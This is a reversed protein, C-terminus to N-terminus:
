QLKAYEAKAQKLIPIEPDADKWLTRFDQYATRAKSTDGSLAYARALQLHALAAIVENQVVGPHALIKRFEGAAPVGQKAMLYAEGRLYVPYFCFLVSLDTLGLEYPAAPKLAEVAKGAEYSQLAVAARITPLFSLNIVTNEPYRKELDAALHTAQASDGAMALAVASMAHVNKGDLAALADNAEKQALAANGVVAERVAEAARAAAALEKDDLRKSAEATRRTLERAEVYHGEYAATDSEDYLMQAEWEPNKELTAAEKKMGAEDRQLFDIMYLGTHYLPSDLHQSLAAVAQAKADDLREDFQYAALLNSSINGAHSLDMAKQVLELVTDWNGLYLNVLALDTVATPDRPYVQEWLEYDRRAAELNGTVDEDYHSAIYFRREWIWLCSEWNRM